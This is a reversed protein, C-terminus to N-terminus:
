LCVGVTQLLLSQYLQQQLRALLLLAHGRSGQVASVAM